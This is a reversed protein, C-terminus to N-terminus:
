RKDQAQTDSRKTSRYQEYRARQKADLMFEIRNDAARRQTGLESQVASPLNPLNRRYIDTEDDRLQHLIARLLTVQEGNLDFERVYQEVFRRDAAQLDIGSSAAAVQQCLVSGTAVGAVAATLVAALVWAFTRNM